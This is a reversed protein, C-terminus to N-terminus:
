LDLDLRGTQEDLEELGVEVLLRLGAIAITVAGTGAVVPVFYLDVCQL